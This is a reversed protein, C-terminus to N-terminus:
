EPLDDTSNGWTPNLEIVKAHIELAIEVPLKGWALAFKDESMALYPRGTASDQAFKFLPEPPTSEDVHPALINCAVLTLFVERRVIEPFSIRQKLEVESGMGDRMIRSATAWMEARLTHERTTAQRITIKTDGTPDCEDLTFERQEPTKLQLAM